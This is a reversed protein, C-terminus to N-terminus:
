WQRGPKRIFGHLHGAADNYGGVITGEANIGAAETLTAGPFDFSNFHGNRLLFGHTANKRDTYWGVIDGEANNGGCGGSTSGPFDVTTFHGRYLLYGHMVGDPNFYVGVIAGELNVTAAWSNVAGPPDFGVFQGTPTRLFSHFDNCDVDRCYEGVLEGEINSGSLQSSAAGPYDVTLYRGNRLIFGHQAGGQDYYAGIVDDFPTIWFPITGEPGAQPVNVDIFRGHSYVFGGHLVGSNNDYSGVADGQPNPGGNLSSDAAGPYDVRIYTQAWAMSSAAGAAGIACIVLFRFLKSM